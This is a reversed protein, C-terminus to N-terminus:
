IGDASTTTDPIFIQQANSPQVTGSPYMSQMGSLVAAWAKEVQAYAAWIQNSM